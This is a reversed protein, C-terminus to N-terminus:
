SVPVDDYRPAYRGATCDTEIAIFERTTIPEFTVGDGPNILSPQDGSADFLPVPTRGILRWGGPADIPYIGTLQQTIAVSRAPVRGRPKELRPMHLADPLDGLYPFGPLFGLMYTHHETQSHRRIIDAVSLGTARAVDEIDPGADGGYEVPLRWQRKTPPAGGSRNEAAIALFEQLERTLTAADTMGPDFCILLSRFSPILDLQGPLANAQLSRALGLVRNSLDRDIVDGFEVVLAADGAQRIPVGAAGSDKDSDTTM